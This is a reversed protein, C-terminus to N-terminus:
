FAFNLSSIRYTTSSSDRQPSSISRRLTMPSWFPAFFAQEVQVSKLQIELMTPPLHAIWGLHHEEVRTHWLELRTLTRPFYM